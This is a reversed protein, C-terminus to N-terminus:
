QVVKKIQNEWPSFDFNEVFKQAESKNVSELSYYVPDGSVDDANRETNNKWDNLTLYNHGEEHGLESVVVEISGKEIYEHMASSNVSTYGGAAVMDDKIKFMGIEKTWNLDFVSSFEYGYELSMVTDKIDEVSNGTIKIMNGKPTQYQLVYIEVAPPLPTATVDSANGGILAAAGGIGTGAGFIQKEAQRIGRDTDDGGDDKKTANVAGAGVYLGLLGLLGWSIAEKHEIIYDIVDFAKKVPYVDKSVPIGDLLYEM